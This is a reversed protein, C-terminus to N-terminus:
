PRQTHLTPNELDTELDTEQGEEKVEEDKIKRNCRILGCCINVTKCRSKEVILLFSGCAGIIAVATISMETLTFPDLLKDTTNM